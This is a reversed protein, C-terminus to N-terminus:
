HRRAAGRRRLRWASLAGALLLLAAATWAAMLVPGSRWGTGLRAAARSAAPTPATGPPAAPIASGPRASRGPSAPAAPAPWALTQLRAGATGAVVVSALLGGPAPALSLEEGIEYFGPGPPAPTAPVLAGSEAASAPASGSRAVSLDAWDYGLRDGARWHVACLLRAKGPGAPALAPLLLDAGAPPTVASTLWQGGPIGTAPSITTTAVAIVAHGSRWLPVAVVLAAGAVTMDGAPFDYFSAGPLALPPPDGALVQRPPSPPGSPGLVSVLVAETGNGTQETWSVAVRGGGLPALRAGFASGGGASPLAVPPGFTVGGDRSAAVEIRDSTGVDQCADADDGQSWAVWVLGGAGAAVVPRDDFSGTGRQDSVLRVPGLRGGPGVAAIAVSGHEICNEGPPATGAVVLLPGGPVATASADYSSGFGGPLVAGATAWGHDGARRTWALAQAGAPGFSTAVVASVAPDQAAVPEGFSRAAGTAVTATVVPPVAAAPPAASLASAAALLGALCSHLM